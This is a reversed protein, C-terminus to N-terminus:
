AEAGRARALFRDRIAPLLGGAAFCAAEQASDIRLRAEFRRLSGGPNRVELTVPKRVLTEPLDFSITSHLDIGLDRRRVDAALEIPLVQMLALNARHIREFSEAIVACVGLMRTGKAAWDRASGTGYAAGAVIVTPVGAARYHAAAAPITMAEGGPAVRTWGGDRGALENRLRPNAFTGRLMVEANGRRAGYTNFDKPEIQSNRLLVGAPSDAAISGVPSIHDTTVHDGLVVLPRADALRRPFPRGRFFPSRGIYGSPEWSFRAGQPADLADWRPDPQAASSEYLRRSLFRDQLRDLEEEGPWLDALAIPLGGATHGLPAHELDLHLNGALAYAVVLPPSALYNLRVLPHIRGEFNRNGSLVAAVAAGSARLAREAEPQLPGGNGVCTACGFGVLHFGLEALPEILGAAALYDADGRSGPSLSAKVRPLVRLGAAVANRALLGAALMARPNSTNTCSTIAAIVVDGDRLDHTRPAPEPLGAAVASLGTAQQPRQPGAVTRGIAGRDIDLVDDYAIDEGAVQRDMRAWASALARATKSRGTLALYDLTREDLPFLGCSAGYEPAMNAITARDAVPLGALAPGFFEVFRDVVGAARLRETIRLAADTALVGPRLRGLLRVGTVPPVLLALPEGLMAAEAEIGGVGWALVGLGNIMTTHSDAGVLTEPHVLGSERDQVIASALRELNVQHVIGTGPPVVRLNAFARQAWKLFRYRERNQAYEDALNRELAGAGSANVVLSHDVVLDVPLLPQVAAPNGGAEAIEERLSALDVLAVLGSYDQLLVRTPHFAIELAAQPQEPRTALAAIQSADVAEGDEHRLLNELLLRHALPLRRVSPFRQALAVLSMTAGRGGAWSLPRRVTFSDLPGAKPQRELVAAASM